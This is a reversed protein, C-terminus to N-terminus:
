NKAQDLILDKVKRSPLNLAGYATAAANRLEANTEAEQIIKYIGTIQQDTLFNGNLKASVALSDFADIRIELGKNPNVANKAIAQQAAPNAIHSLVQASLTQIDPNNSDGASILNSMAASLDIVTNHAKALELMATVSRLAYSDAIKENWLSKEDDSSKEKQTLAEALNAVVLKSDSFNEQPNASAIAIAASYRVMKDGFSLAQVLPQETGVRYFLSKEGATTALAEILGLAVYANKDKIARALGQHLYEVGATTAYMIADPHEKGFYEPMSGIGASEAKFYSALWLSIASGFNADAKLAWECNRMAMLEYFYESSVEESTLKKKETDWFWINLLDTKHVPELSQTHYYYQEALKYFLQAASTNMAAPDIKRISNGALTRLEQSSDNELIYKLYPLAQTYSIQGLAEIIQSKLVQNDTQLAASLPRLADRGVMPLARLINPYEKQRDAQTLAELMFPIAYEGASTLRKSGTQFGRETTSLRKIEEYIVAPDTSRLLSGQEIVKLIKGSLEALNPDAGRQAQQVLQFGTTNQQSLDFVQVANNPDQILAKGYIQALDFRGIRTYHLFDNWNQELTQSFGTCSIFLGVALIIVVTRKDFM